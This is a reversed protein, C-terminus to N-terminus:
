EKPAEPAIEGSWIESPDLQRSVVREAVNRLRLNRDRAYRRLKAFAEEMGLNSQQAIIGRAQEIVVRSDLAQQLQNIVLRADHAARDELISISAIGALARATALEDDNLLGKRTRFMNLAGLNHQRLRMPLATVSNIGAQSSVRVFDPWREQAEPASVDPVFVPSGSRYADFCPGDQKELQLLEIVLAEESTTAMVQLTGTQDALVLGVHDTDALEACSEVLRLFLDTVDFDSVLTDALGILVEALRGERSTM